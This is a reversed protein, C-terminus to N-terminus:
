LRRCTDAVIHLGYALQQLVLLGLSQKHDIGDGADARGWQVHIRPTDIDQNASRLLREHNRGAEAVQRDALARPVAHFRGVIRAVVESRSMSAHPISTRIPPDCFASM